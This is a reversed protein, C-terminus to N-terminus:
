MSGRRVTTKLLFNLTGISFNKELARRSFNSHAMLDTSSSQSNQTREDVILSGRATRITRVTDCKGKPGSRHLPSKGEGPQPYKSENGQEQLVITPERRAEISAWRKPMVTPAHPTRCWTTCALHWIHCKRSVGVVNLMLFMGFFLSLESQM